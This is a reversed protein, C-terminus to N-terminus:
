WPLVGTDEQLSGTPGEPGIVAMRAVVAASQEVPRGGGIAATLDTATYGPEGGIGPNNVLVTM